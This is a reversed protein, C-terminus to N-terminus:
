EAHGFLKLPSDFPQVLKTHGISPQNPIVVYEAITLSFPNYIDPSRWTFHYGDYRQKLKAITEERTCGLAQAMQDIHGSMQTLMEEETIGCITAYPKLM